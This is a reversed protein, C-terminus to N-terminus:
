STGGEGCASCIFGNPPTGLCTKCIVVEPPALPMESAGLCRAIRLAEAYTASRDGLEVKSVVTQHVGIADGLQKQTLHKAARRESLWKGFWRDESTISAKGRGSGHRM